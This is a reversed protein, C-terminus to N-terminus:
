YTYDGAYLSAEADAPPAYQQAHAPPAPPPPPSPAGQEAIAADEREIRHLHRQLVSVTAESSDAATPPPM